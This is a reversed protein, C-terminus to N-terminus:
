NCSMGGAEETCQMNLYTALSDIWTSSYNRRKIKKRLAVEMELHFGDKNELQNTTSDTHKEVSHNCLDKLIITWQGTAYRVTAADGKIDKAFTGFKRALEADLSCLTKSALLVTRHYSRALHHGICWGWLHPCSAAELQFYVLHGETTRNPSHRRPVWQKQQKLVWNWPDSNECVQLTVATNSLMARVFQKWCRAARLPMGTSILLQM